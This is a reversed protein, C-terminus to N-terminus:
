LPRERWTLAATIGSGTSAATTMALSVIVGPPVMIRGDFEYHVDNLGADTVAAWGGLLKALAPTGSHTLASYFQAKSSVGSLNGAVVSGQAQTSFTALASLAVTSFYLAVADVVTTALVTAIDADILELLVGSSPPNYLAFKSVLNNASVPMTFAAQNATFVQGRSCSDAFDGSDQAVILQQERSFRALVQTGDAVGAALAPGVLGKVNLDGNYM